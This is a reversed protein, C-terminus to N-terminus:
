IIEEYGAQYSNIDANELGDIDAEWKGNSGTLTGRMGHKVQM